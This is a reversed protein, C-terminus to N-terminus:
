AGGAVAAKNDAEGIQDLLKKCESRSFEDFGTAVGRAAVKKAEPIKGAHALLLAYHLTIGGSAPYLAHLRELMQLDEPSSRGTQLAQHISPPYFEFLDYHGPADILKRAHRIIRSDGCEQTLRDYIARREMESQDDGFGGKPFVFKLVELSRDQYTQEVIGSM